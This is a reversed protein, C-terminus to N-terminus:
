ITMDKKGHETHSSVSTPHIHKCAHTIMYPLVPLKVITHMCHITINIVLPIQLLGTVEAILTTDVSCGPYVIAVIEQTDGRLM